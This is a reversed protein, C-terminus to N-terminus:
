PQKQPQKPVEVLEPAPVEFARALDRAFSATVDHGTAALREIAMTYDLMRTAFAKLREANEPDPLPWTLLPALDANGRNVAAYPRLLGTSFATGGAQADATVWDRLVGQLFQAKAYSGGENTASGDQGTLAFFIDTKSLKLSQPFLQWGNGAFEVKELKTGATTMIHRIGSWLEAVAAELAKGVPDSVGIKEPLIAHLKPHGVARKASAGDVITYGRDAIHLALPIVAGHEWAHTKVTRAVIWKGDGHRIPVRGDRTLAILQGTSNTDVSELDWPEVTVDWRSGDARPTWTNQLIALGCSALDEAAERLVDPTLMPGRLGIQPEVELRLKEDGALLVHNTALWPAVRQGLAGVYNSDRRFFRCLRKGMFIRGAQHADRYERIRDVTWEGLWQRHYTDFRHRLYREDTSLVIPDNPGM